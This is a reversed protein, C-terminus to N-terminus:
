DSFCFDELNQQQNSQQTETVSGQHPQHDSSAVYHAGQQQSFHSSVANHPPAMVHAHPATSHPAISDSSTHHVNPVPASGRFSGETPVQATNFPQTPCPPFHHQSYPPPLQHPHFSAQQFSDRALVQQQQPHQFSSM